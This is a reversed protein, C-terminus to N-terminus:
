SSACIYYILDCYEVFLFLIVGNQCLFCVLRIFIVFSYCYGNVKQWVLM